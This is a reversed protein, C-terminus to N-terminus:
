RLPSDQIFLNLNLRYKDSQMIYLKASPPYHHPTTKETAPRPRKTGTFPVRFAEVYWSINSSEMSAVKHSCNSSPGNRNWCVTSWHVFDMFVHILSNQTSSSSQGACLGSRFRISDRQSSYSRLSLALGKQGVDTHSRVFASRSSHDFIGM